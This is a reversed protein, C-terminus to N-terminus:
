KSIKVEIIGIGPRPLSQLSPEPNFPKKALVTAYATGFYATV